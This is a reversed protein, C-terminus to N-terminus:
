YIDSTRTAAKRKPAKVEVGIFRGDKLQGIVDPCGVFGFRIFRNGVKAAGSNM